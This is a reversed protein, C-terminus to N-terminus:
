CPAPEGPLLPRAVLSRAVGESDTYRTLANGEVLAPLLAALDGGSVVACRVDISGAASGFRSFAVALPWKAQGPTIAMGADVATPPSALVAIGDPNWPKSEGMDAALWISATQLRSVFDGFAQATGPAATALPDDAACAGSLEHTVGAVIMTVHCTVGGPPVTGFTATKGLLGAKDAEAAIAAIGAASISRRSIGTYIPGPYIAPIMIMGDYFWGDAITVQPMWGFTYQPALAQTQWVRLYFDHGPGTAVTTPQPEPSGSPAVTPAGGGASTCASVALAAALALAARVSSRATDSKMSTGWHRRHDM